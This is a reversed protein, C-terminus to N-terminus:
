EEGGGMMVSLLYFAGKTVFPKDKPVDGVFSVETFGLDTVGPVVEIPLFSKVKTKKEGVEEEGNEVFVYFKEGKQVIADKPLTPVTVNNVNINASVYMGSILGKVDTSSIKAHVVVAKSENTFSKNIGFITAKLIKNAQNTFVVDVTQGEKIKFLDKEYVNLDLHIQSNDIIDFLPKGVEAYGGKTAHIKGIYGSIPALIPINPSNDTSVNLMELRKQASRARVQEVALKSKVEQFTKKGNINEESLTKQRDYELQLYEINANATAYDEQMQIIDLNQITALVKGKTVYAGELVLINQVTGGILTSVNATNQQPVNTYGNAKIVANLNRMEVKGTGIAVAKYQELTLTVEKEVQKEAASEAPKETTATAVEAKKDNKCATLFLSSVFLVVIIKTFSNKM